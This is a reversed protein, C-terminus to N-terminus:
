PVRSTHAADCLAPTSADITDQRKSVKMSQTKFSRLTKHRHFSFWADSMWEDPPEDAFTLCETFIHLVQSSSKIHMLFVRFVVRGAPTFILFLFTLMAHLYVYGKIFLALFGGVICSAVVIWAVRAQRGRFNFISLLDNILEDVIMCVRTLMQLNQKMAKPTIFTIQQLFKSSTEPPIIFASSRPETGGQKVGRWFLVFAVLFLLLPIWYAHIYSSLWLLIFIAGSMVPDEWKLVSVILMGIWSVQEAYALLKYAYTMLNNLSFHPLPPSEKVRLPAIAYAWQWMSPYFDFQAEIHLAGASLYNDMLDYHFVKLWLNYMVGAELERLHLKCYGILDDKTASDEDMVHFMIKDTPDYVDFTYAQDWSPCLTKQIVTTRKEFQRPQSMLRIRVYPDSSTARGLHQVTRDGPFLGKANKVRILVRGCPKGALLEQLASPLFQFTHKMWPPFSRFMGPTYECQKTKRLNVRVTDSSSSEEFTDKTRGSVVKNFDLQVSLIPNEPQDGDFDVYVEIPLDLRLSTGPAHKLDMLDVKVDGVVIDTKIRKRVRIVFNLVDYEEVIFRHSSSSSSSGIKRLDIVFSDTNVSAEIYSKRSDRFDLGTLGVIKCDCTMTSDTDFLSVSRTWAKM